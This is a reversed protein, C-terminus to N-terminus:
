SRANHSYFVLDSGENAQGQDTLEWYGDVHMELCEHKNEKRCSRHRMIDAM